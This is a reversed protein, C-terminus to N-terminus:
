YYCLAVSRTSLFDGAITKLKTPGDILRRPTAGRPLCSSNILTNTGGSDFLVRLLRKSEVGQISRAILLSSPVFDKPISVM